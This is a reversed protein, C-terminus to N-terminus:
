ENIYQTFDGGPTVKGNASDELGALVHEMAEKNKYLWREREALDACSNPKTSVSKKARYSSRLSVIKHPINLANIGHDRVIAPKAM